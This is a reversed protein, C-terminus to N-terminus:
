DDGFMIRLNEISDSDGRGGFAEKVIATKRKQIQLIRREITDSVIFHKVHVTREQGIRHVRDIAQNEIASNWWCDMMFVHNANTLNLGVGGAKLSVILVKPEDSNEKFSAVAENRRRVDMTGDFRLWRLREREFAFQILDLFTTFQSFVVARFAPDTQRIARLNQLLADLKTSSRFDNKRLTVANGGPKGTRVIELLDSESVPEHFCTPCCGEKGRDICQQLCATICDKCGQHLCGPILVPSQMVDMCIPCEAEEEQGLNNLVDEAYANGGKGIDPKTEGDDNAAQPTSSGSANDIYSQIMGRLDIFTSDASAKALDDSDKLVLGPHLVARRLRMLMALIHTYNKNVVGKESLKEFRRKADHYLSDYIKRELPSFELEEVTVEKPPLEVIMRGDADRMNKERRLLVSELIVQVVEIAKPDRALFPLTVFSRFFTYNSWPKFDLFKLLSYLDELRNVIPTGTVAWRRRARLAYVAKATKSQRSKCSHAEDLIVSQCFKSDFVSSAPKDGQTKSFESVLTGYSTIVVDKGKQELGQEVLSDLDLRNQGHWVLVKLTDPKSSRSLEDHWQTLLSTPAVILTASPGTSPLGPVDTSKATDGRNRFAGDLRLQKRRSARATPDPPEPESATQILASLMITKGMGLVRQALIGGRFKREARPLELSLEGSYENFYFPRDDVTLDIIDQSQHPDSPFTYEKWLPHMTQEHRASDTSTEMNYMWWLAQKQYTRLTLTFTDSPNMEGMFTDNQQAKRYILNLQNDSLEEEDAEVVIEEGDGVIETHSGKKAKSAKQALLRLDEQSLQKKKGGRFSGRKTPKLNLIDFLHILSSKRERLIQEDLSEQGENFTPKSPEDEASTSPPRFASTKLYISLSVIISAGSHLSPPCDVVTSGKFEVIGLDLLKSVWTSVEQPLRAFEFGRMTTLRVVIDQKKKTPKPAAPKLMTAISLQKKGDKTKPDRRASAKKDLKTPESSSDREIRIEDAPKVFGRGRVTSWADAVLFSGIYASAFNTGGESAPFSLKRRKRPPENSAEPVASSARSSPAPPRASSTSSVSSARSSPVGHVSIDVDMQENLDPVNHLMGAFNEPCTMLHSPPPKEDEDGSDAFFLSNTQPQSEPNLAEVSRHTDPLTVYELEDDREDDSGTFFLSRETHGSDVM